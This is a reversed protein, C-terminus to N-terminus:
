YVRVAVYFCNGIHLSIRRERGDTGLLSSLQRRSVYYAVPIMSLM